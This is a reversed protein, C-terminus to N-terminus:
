FNLLFHASLLDTQFVTYRPRGTLNSRGVINIGEFPFNEVYHIKPKCAFISFKVRYSIVMVMTPWCRVNANPTSAFYGMKHYERYTGRQLTHMM